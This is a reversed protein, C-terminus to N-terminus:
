IGMRKMFEATSVGSERNFRGLSYLDKPNRAIFNVRQACGLSVKFGMKEVVEAASECSSGYPYTFTLPTYDCHDSLLKQTKKLDAELMQKYSKKDEGNKISCGVRGDLSHLDYSHNGIEVRGCAILENIDDFNFHSYNPNHDEEASFRETYSGVVSIIAKFDYKELLPLVYTMNNLYGDDLTIMVCKEPLEGGNTYNILDESLITTYGNEKLYIFDSELETPTIVYKGSKATDKLVSHYMIIPVRVKDDSDGNGAKAIRIAFIIGLAVALCLLFYGILTKKKVACLIM